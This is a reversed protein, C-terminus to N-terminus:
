RGLRLFGEKKLRRASTPAVQWRRYEGNRGVPWVAITGEPPIVEDINDMEIINNCIFYREEGNLEQIWYRTDSNNLECAENAKEALEYINDDM